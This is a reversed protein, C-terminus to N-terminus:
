REFLELAAKMSEFAAPSLPHSPAVIVLVAQCVAATFSHFLWYWMRSTIGPHLAFLGRAINIIGRAAGTLSTISAAYRSNTLNKPELMLARCFPGRHLHLLTLFYMNALSARQANRRLEADGAMAHVPLEKVPNEVADCIIWGPLADYHDHIERDLEMIVSYAPHNVSFALDVIRGLLIAFRFKHYHWRTHSFASNSPDTDSPLPTDCSQPMECDHGCVLRDYMHTEWFVRRREELERQPLGWRSGDRHCGQAQISRMAIGLLQWASDGGSEGKTSLFYLAMLHLTQVGPITDFKLPICINLSLLALDYLEAARDRVSDVPLSLDFFGGLSLVMAVLSLVHLNTPMYPNAGDPYVAPLHVKLFINEPIIEYRLHNLFLSLLPPSFEQMFSVNKFYIHAIRVAEAHPPLCGMKSLIEAKRLTRSISEPSSDDSITKSVAAPPMGSDQSDKRSQTQGANGTWLDANLYAAGGSPGVYRSRNEVDITLTGFGLTVDTTDVPMAACDNETAPPDSTSSETRPRKARGTLAAELEQIRKTMAADRAVFMALKLFGRKGKELTGTPCLNACGRRICSSCPFVRDCRLKLRRCEACSTVQSKRAATSSGPAPNAEDM